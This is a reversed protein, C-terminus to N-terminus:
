ENEYRWNEKNLIIQNDALHKFVLKENEYNDNMSIPKFWLYSGHAGYMSYVKFFIAVKDNDPMLIEIFKYRYNSEAELLYPDAGAYPFANFGYKDIIKRQYSEYLDQYCVHFTDSLEFLEKDTTLTTFFDYRIM